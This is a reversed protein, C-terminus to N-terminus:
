RHLLRRLYLTNAPQQITFCARRGERLKQPFVVSNKHYPLSSSLTLFGELDSVAFLASGHAQTPASGVPESVSTLTNRQQYRQWDGSLEQASTSLLTQQSFHTLDAVDQLRVQVNIVTWHRRPNAVVGGPQVPSGFVAQVEFLAVVPTEALYLVEFQPQATDGANLRSPLM